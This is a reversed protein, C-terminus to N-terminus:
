RKGETDIQLATLGAVVRIQFSLFAILQSLTVIGDADWGADLLTQLRTRSADRPHFILFHAFEIGASLREGLVYVGALDDVAYEPGIVTEVALEGRFAGYPGYGKAYAAEALIVDFASSGGLDSSTLLGGYFGVASPVDHLAAIFAAIAFRESLSMAAADRPAFLAEFSGQAHTRAEPRNSRILDLGDGAEIGVLTDIVDSPLAHPQPTM